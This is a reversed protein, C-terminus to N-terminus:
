TTGLAGRESKLERRSVRVEGDGSSGSGRRSESSQEV